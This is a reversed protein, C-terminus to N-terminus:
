RPDDGEPPQRRDWRLGGSRRLRGPRWWPQRPHLCRAFLHREGGLGPHVRIRGDRCPPLRRVQRRRHRHAVLSCACRECSRSRRRRSRAGASRDTGGHEPDRGWGVGDGAVITTIPSGVASRTSSTRSAESRQDGIARSEALRLPARHESQGGHQDRAHAPHRDARQDHRLLGPVPRAPDEQRDTGGQRERVQELDQGDDASAAVGPRDGEEARDGEDAEIQDVGDGQKGQQEEQIRIAMHRTRSPAPRDTAEQSPRAQRDDAVDDGRARDVGEDGVPDEVDIGGPDVAGAETELESM